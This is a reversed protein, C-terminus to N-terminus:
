PQVAAVAVAPQVVARRFRFGLDLPRGRFRFRLNFPRLRLGFGFSGCRLRLRLRPSLPRCRFRFRPGFSRRGLRRCTVWGRCRAMVLVRFFAFLDDEHNIAGRRSRGRSRRLAPAVINDYQDRASTSPVTM